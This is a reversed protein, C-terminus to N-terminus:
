SKKQRKVVDNEAETNISQKNQYKEAKSTVYAETGRKLVNINYYQNKFKIKGTDTSNKDFKIQKNKVVSFENSDVYQILYFLDCMEEDDSSDLRNLRTRKRQLPETSCM